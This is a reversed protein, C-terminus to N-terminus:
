DGGGATLWEWILTRLNFAAHLVIPGVLAGSREYQVGLIVGFLILAPVVHPQNAHAMGFLTAATLVALWRQRTARLLATQVIGRFFCEEAVPAVLVAGLWLAVPAWAPENPNRLAEIVRHEAFTYAPKFLLILQRTGEATAECLATAVLLYVLAAGAARLAGRRGLLFGRVGGRFCYAGLWLCCTAGVIQALSNATLQAAASEGVAGLHERLAAFLATALFHATMPLLILVPVLRNGRARTRRWFDAGDRRWLVLVALAAIVFGSGILVQAAREMTEPTIAAVLNLRIGSM